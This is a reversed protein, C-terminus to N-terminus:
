KSIETYIMSVIEDTTYNGTREVNGKASNCSKCLPTVDDITYIYSNPAQSLSPTHDRTLNEKGVFHAERGFGPCVGATKDLKDQWQEETYSESCGSSKVRSKNVLVRFKNRGRETKRYAKVYDSGYQKRNKESCADCYRQNNSSRWFTIKCDECAKYGGNCNGKTQKMEKNM